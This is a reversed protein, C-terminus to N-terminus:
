KSIFDYIDKANNILANVDTSGGTIGDAFNLARIKLQQDNEKIRNDLDKNLEDQLQIELDLVYQELNELEKKYSM